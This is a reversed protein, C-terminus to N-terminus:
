VFDKDPMEKIISNLLKNNSFYYCHKCKGSIDIDYPSEGNAFRQNMEGWAILIDKHDCLKWTPHYNRNILVHSSCIYVGNWVIYPRIMGVYCGEQFAHFNDNIEKIFFKGYPDIEQIFTGWNDKITLSEDTLCDAAIRVFKIEPHLEVLDKIKFLSEKTTFNKYGDYKNYIIYSFGIKSIDFGDFNYDEPKKGEDLKILSIRIWQIKDAFRKADIHRRLVETNTIIGIKYDLDVCAQLIDNFKKDGDRYILPNGSGTLEISKAGLSKFDTLVQVIKDFSIKQKTDRNQVSCFSCDSDCNETPGLQITVPRFKRDNQIENLLDAHQLLKDGFTSYNQTQVEYSINNKNM